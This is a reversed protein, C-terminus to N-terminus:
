FSPRSAGAGDQRRRADALSEPLGIGDDAGDAKHPGCCRERRERPSVRIPVRLQDLFPPIARGQNRCMSLDSYAIPVRRRLRAEKLWGPNVVGSPVVDEGRLLNM